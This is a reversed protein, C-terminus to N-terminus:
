CWSEGAYAEKLLKKILTTKGAGLFGSFIDVKILHEHNPTMNTGEEQKTKLIDGKIISRFRDFTLRKQRFMATIEQANKLTDM